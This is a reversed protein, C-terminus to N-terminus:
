YGHQFIKWPRNPNQESLLSEFRTRTSLLKNQAFPSEAQLIYAQMENRLVFANETRYIRQIFKRVYDLYPIKDAAVREVSARFEQHHFYLGHLFEHSPLGSFVAYANFTLLADWDKSALWPWLAQEEALLSDESENEIRRTASEFDARRLDVGQWFRNLPHVGQESTKLVRAGQEVLSVVRGLAINIRLNGDSVCILTRPLESSYGCLLDAIKESTDLAVSQLAVDLWQTFSIDGKLFKIRPWRGSAFGESAQPAPMDLEESPANRWINALRAARAVRLREIRGCAKFDGGLCAKEFLSTVESDATSRWLMQMAATEGCGAPADSGSSCNLVATALAHEQEEVFLAFDFLPSKRKQFYDRGQWGLYTLLFGVLLWSHRPFIKFNM